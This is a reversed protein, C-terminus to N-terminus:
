GDDVVVCVLGAIALAASGVAGVLLAPPAADASPPIASAAAATGVGLAGGAALLAVGAATWKTTTTTTTTDTSTETSPPPSPGAPATKADNSTTAMAAAGDSRVVTSTTPTAPTGPAVVSVPPELGAAAAAPQAVPPGVVSLLPAAAQRGADQPEGSGDVFATQEFLVNSAADFLQLAVVHDRRGTGVVGVVLLHSARHRQALTLLCSVDARCAATQDPPLPPELMRWHSGVVSVLGAAVDRQSPDRDPLTAVVAVQAQVPLAAFGTM